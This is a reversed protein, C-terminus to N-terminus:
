SLLKSLQPLFPALIPGYVTIHNSLISMLSNYSAKYNSTGVSAKLENIITTFEGLYELEKDLSELKSNLEDFLKITEPSNNNVTQAVQSSANALNQVTGNITTNFIQNVKEIPVPTSKLEAEGAAPDLIEIELAFNLIRTRITDLISAVIYVPIVKWAHYCIMREYFKDQLHLVIDPNWQEQFSGHDGDESSQALSELSAVSQYFCAYQLSNRINEPVCLMPIDANKLGTGYAGSFHGKSNVKLKRYEPLKAEDQYGNLEWDVWEKFEHNNLRFSLYKCKRLLQALDSKSNIAESQIERLLSVTYEKKFTQQNHWVILNWQHTRISWSNM